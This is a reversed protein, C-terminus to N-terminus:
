TPRNLLLGSKYWQEVVLQIQATAASVQERGRHREGDSSRQKAESARLIRTITLILRRKTRETIRYQDPVPIGRARTTEVFNIYTLFIFCNRISSITWAHVGVERRDDKIGAILAKPFLTRHFAHELYSMENCLHFILFRARATASLELKNDHTFRFRVCESRVLIALSAVLADTNTEYGFTDRLCSQLKGSAMSSAALLQMMRIKELLSHQSALPKSTWDHYNFANDLVGTFLDCEVINPGKSRIFADRFPDPEEALIANEFWPLESFLLLEVLRYKRRTLIAQGEPSIMYAIIEESTTSAGIGLAKVSVAEAIFWLLSRRIFDFLTRLNGGFLDYVEEGKFPSGVSVNIISM